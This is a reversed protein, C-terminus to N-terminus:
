RHGNGPIVPQACNRHGAEICALTRSTARLEIMVYYTALGLVAVVVAAIVNQRMRVREDWANFGPREPAQSGHEVSWTPPRRLLLPRSDRQQRDDDGM